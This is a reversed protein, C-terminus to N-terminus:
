LVFGAPLESVMVSVMLLLVAVYEGVKEPAFSELRGMLDSWGEVDATARSAIVARAWVAPTDDSQGTLAAVLAPRAAANGGTAHDILTDSWAGLVAAVGEAGCEGSIRTVYTSAADWRGACAAQLASGALRLVKRHAVFGAGTM